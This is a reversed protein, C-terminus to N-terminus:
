EGNEGWGRLLDIKVITGVGESSNFKLSSGHIGAIKEALSLGLGAGHQKRSRSKDVMYFEKTIKKLEAAPIGRGNDTVSVSYLSGNPEGVVEIRGCGAKMANDLLNLLLTKFLDYEVM